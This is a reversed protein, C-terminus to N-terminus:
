REVFLPQGEGAARGNGPRMRMQPLSIIIQRAAAKSNIAV